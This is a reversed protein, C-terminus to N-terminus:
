PRNGQRDVEQIFTWNDITMKPVKSSGFLSDPNELNNLKRKEIHPKPPLLRRHLVDLWDLDRFWSHKKIAALDIRKQPDKELLQGLLSKLDDSM